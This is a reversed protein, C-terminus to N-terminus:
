ARGLLRRIIEFLTPDNKPIAVTVVSQRNSATRRKSAAAAVANEIAKKTKTMNGVRESVKASPEKNPSKNPSKRTTNTPSRVIIHKAQM